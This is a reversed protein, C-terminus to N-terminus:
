RKPRPRRLRLRPECRGLRRPHHQLRRPAATRNPAPAPAPAKAAPAGAVAGAAAGDNIRAVVANVQVTQGEEM